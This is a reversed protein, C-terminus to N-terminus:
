GKRQELVCDALENGCQSPLNWASFLLSMIDNFPPQIRQQLLHTATKETNQELSKSLVKFVELRKEFDLQVQQIPYADSEVFGAMVLAFGRCCVNKRLSQVQFLHPEQWSIESSVELVERVVPQKRDCLHVCRKVLCCFLVQPSSARAALRYSQEKFPKLQHSKQRFEQM